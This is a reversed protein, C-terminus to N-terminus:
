DRGGILSSKVSHVIGDAFKCTVLKSFLHRLSLFVIVFNLVKLYNQMESFKVVGSNM